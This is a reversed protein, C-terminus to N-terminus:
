RGASAVAPLSRLYMWLAKLETDTMKGFGLPMVPNLQKGDPRLGTQLTHIFDAESWHVLDGAPTLNRSPPWDPPAGPIRGGALQEGHCGTCGVALYHGYEVSVGPVVTPPRLGAHDIHEAAIKIQGAVMLARAVPGVSIAVRDRDVKPVAKLYAVLAGLDDDSLQSYEISPMLVLPLGDKAVGHRIARIWDEDSFAATRSGHGGTLNSGWMLGVAPDDVVKAGGLDKGHCDVCGRTEAIHRGRQVASADTPITVPKVAVSYSRGLKRASLAYVAAAAVVLLFVVAGLVYGLYKFVRKMPLGALLAAPADNALSWSISIDEGARRRLELAVM